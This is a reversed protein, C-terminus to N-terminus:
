MNEKNGQNIAMVKRIKFSKKLFLKNKFRKICKLRYCLAFINRSKSILVECIFVAICIGVLFGILIFLYKLDNFTVYSIKSTSKREIEVDQMKLTYKMKHKFQDILGQEVMRQMLRNMHDLM